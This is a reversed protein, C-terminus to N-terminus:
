QKYRVFNFCLFLLRQQWICLIPSVTAVLEVQGEGLREQRSPRTFSLACRRITARMTQAGEFLPVIHDLQNDLSVRGCQNCAIHATIWRQRTDM